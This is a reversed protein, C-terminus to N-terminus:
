SHRFQMMETKETIPLITGGMTKIESVLSSISKVMTDFGTETHFLVVSTKYHAIANKASLVMEEETIDGVTDMYSVNWDYGIMNRDDLVRRCEDPIHMSGGSYLYYVPYAGTAEYISDCVKTIEKKYDTAHVISDLNIGITHGKAVAKRCDKWFDEESNAEVFFTALADAKDLEKYLTEFQEKTKPSFLFHVDSIKGDEALNEESDIGEDIFPPLGPDNQKKSSQEKLMGELKDVKNHLLVTHVTLDVVTTLSFALWGVLLALIWRKIRDIRARKQQNDLKKQENNDM